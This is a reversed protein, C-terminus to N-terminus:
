RRCEWSVGGWGFGNAIIGDPGVFPRWPEDRAPGLPRPARNAAIRAAERDGPRGGVGHHAPAPRPAPAAPAVRTTAPSATPSAPSTGAMGRLRQFAERAEAVARDIQHTM